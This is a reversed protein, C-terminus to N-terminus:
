TAGNRVSSTKRVRIAKGNPEGDVADRCVFFAQEVTRDFGDIDRQLSAVDLKVEINCSIGLSERDSIEIERIMGVNLILPV